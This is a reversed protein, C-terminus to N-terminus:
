TSTRTTPRRREARHRVLLGGRRFRRPHLRRDRPGVRGHDAPARQRVEARHHRLRCGDRERRLDRQLSEHEGGSPVEQYVVAGHQRGPAERLRVRSRSRPLLRQRREGRLAAPDTKDWGRRRDIHPSGRRATPTRAAGSSTAPPKRGAACTARGPGASRGAPIGGLMNHSFVFKYKADSNQLTQKLWNYQQLGLTWSWQDGTMSDDSLEGAAPTYPLNM